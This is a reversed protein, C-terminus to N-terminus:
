SCISAWNTTELISKILSLFGSGYMGDFVRHDFTLSLNVRDRIAFTENELVVVKKTVAAMGLITAEPYRIIPIGLITGGMGFNTLTITGSSVDKVSLNNNKAKFAVNQIEKSIDILTLTSLNKIVPVMVAQDVSVALGLNVNKKVIIDEGELSSNVWPYQEVAKAIAYAVFATVTLKSNNEKLIRQKEKNIFQIISTCDIEQVLTAHPATYFSKKMNDAIAKRIPSLPIRECDDEENSVKRQVRQCTKLNKKGAQIYNEVDIKTIRGHNGTGLIKFVEDASIKFEEILRLVAPSLYAQKSEKEEHTKKEVAKEANVMKNRIICLPQGVDITQDPNALIELIIGKVPAPIESNVKDTAVEILPEDLCVEEGIKKLWKVVTAQTISEGLKPLAVTIADDLLKEM